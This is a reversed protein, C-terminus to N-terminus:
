PRATRADQQLARDRQARLLALRRVIDAHVAPDSVAEQMVELHRIAQETRGLQNLLGASVLALWPPGAGLQAATVLHPAAQALLADKQAGASLLPALEFRLYSGYDWHLEGDNPWRAVARELYDAARLGLQVDVAHTRYVVATAVWRYPERFDPDLSLIADTYDFAHQVAGRHMLESGFYVLSRCWLVDALAQRYGLSLVPLWAPSPVYYVDEYRQGRQHDAFASLRLSRAALAVLAMLCSFSARRVFRM